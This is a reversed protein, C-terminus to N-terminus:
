DSFRVEGHLNKDVVIQAHRVEATEGGEWPRRYTFTLGSSGGQKCEFVFTQIGGVGVMREPASDQKYTDSLIEAVAPNEIECAWSFGTTPNSPLEVQVTSTSTKESNANNTTASKTTGCSAFAFALLPLTLLFISKNM